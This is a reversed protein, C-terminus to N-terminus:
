QCAITKFYRISYIWKEVRSQTMFLDFSSVAASWPYRLTWHHHVLLQHLRGLLVFCHFASNPWALNHWINEHSTTFGSVVAWLYRRLTFQSVQEITICLCKYCKYTEKKQSISYVTNTKLHIYKLYVRKRNTISLSSCFNFPKIALSEM